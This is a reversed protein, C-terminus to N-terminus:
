SLEQLETNFIGMNCDTSYKKFENYCEDFWYILRGIQFDMYFENDRFFGGNTSIVDLVKQQYYNSAEM